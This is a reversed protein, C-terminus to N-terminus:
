KCHKYWYRRNNQQHDIVTKVQQKVFCEGLKIIKNDKRRLPNILKRINVDLRDLKIKPGLRALGKMIQTQCIASERVCNELNIKPSLRDLGKMMQRSFSKRRLPNNRGQNNTQLM